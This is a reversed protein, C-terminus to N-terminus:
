TCAIPRPLTTRAVERDTGVTHNTLLAVQPCRLHVLLGRSQSLTVLLDAVRVRPRRHIVRSVWEDPHRRHRCGQTVDFLLIAAKTVLSALCEQCAMPMISPSSLLQKGFPTNIDPQSAPEPNDDALSLGSGTEPTRAGM